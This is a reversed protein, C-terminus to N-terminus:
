RDRIRLWEESLQKFNPEGKVLIRGNRERHRMFFVMNSLRNEDRIGSQIALNVGLQEFGQRLADIVARPLLAFSFEAERAPSSYIIDGLEHQRLHVRSAATHARRYM